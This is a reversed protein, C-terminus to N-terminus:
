YNINRNNLETKIKAIMNVYVKIALDSGHTEETALDSKLTNYISVLKEDSYNLYNEM